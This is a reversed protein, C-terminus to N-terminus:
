LINQNIPARIYKNNNSKTEETSHQTIPQYSHREYSMCTYIRTNFTFVVSYGFWATLKTQKKSRPLTQTQLTQSRPPLPARAQLASERSWCCFPRTCVPLASLLAWDVATWLDNEANSRIDWVKHQKTISHRKRAFLQWYAKAWLKALPHGTGFNKWQCVESWSGELLCCRLEPPYSPLYDSSNQETNHVVTTTCLSTCLCKLM